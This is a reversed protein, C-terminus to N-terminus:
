LSESNLSVISPVAAIAGASGTKDRWRRHSSASDIAM